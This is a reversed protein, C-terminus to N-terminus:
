FACSIGGRKMMEFLLYIKSDSILEIKVGTIKLM